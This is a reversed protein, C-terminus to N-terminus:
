ERRINALLSYDPAFVVAKPKAPLKHTVTEEDKKNTIFVYGSKGGDFDVRVPIITSFEPSVDSRRVKLTLNYGGEGPTVDYRWAYSPIEAGYM